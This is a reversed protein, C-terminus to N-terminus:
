NKYFFWDKRRLDVVTGVEEEKMRGVSYCM